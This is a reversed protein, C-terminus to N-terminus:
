VPKGGSLFFSKLSQMAARGHGLRVLADDTAQWATNIDDLVPQGLTGYLEWNNDRYAIAMGELQSGVRNLLRVAERLDAEMPPVKEDQWRRGAEASGM